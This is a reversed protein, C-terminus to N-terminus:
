VHTGRLVAAFGTTVSKRLLKLANKRLTMCFM